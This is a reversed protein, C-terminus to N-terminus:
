GGLVREGGGRGSSRRSVLWGGEMVEEVGGGVKRGVLCGGRGSALRRGVM